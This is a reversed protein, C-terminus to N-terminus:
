VDVQVQYLACPRSFTVQYMAVRSKSPTLSQTALPVSFYPNGTLKICTLRFKTSHVLDLFFSGPVHVACSLFRTSHVLDSFPFRTCACTRFRTSYRDTDLAGVAVVPEFVAGSGPVTDLAETAGEPGSVAGSGPVTDPAPSAPTPTAGSGPVVGVGAFPARTDM